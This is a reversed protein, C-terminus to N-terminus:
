KWSSDGTLEEIQRWDRESPLISFGANVLTSGGLTAGRPYQVGLMEAGEPASSGPGVWFEGNPLRWTLRQYRKTQEDDDYHRVWFSWGLGPPLPLRVLTLAQTQVMESQDQGAELLLTKFGAKALNAALPGGGPGSGVVIYDYADSSEKPLAAGFATSALMLTAGLGLANQTRNFFRMTAAICLNSVSFLTSPIYSHHVLHIICSSYFRASGLRNLCCFVYDGIIALGHIRSGVNAVRVVIRVLLIVAIV